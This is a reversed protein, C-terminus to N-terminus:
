EVEGPDKGKYVPEVQSLYLAEAQGKLEEVRQADEPDGSVAHAVIAADMRDTLIKLSASALPYAACAVPSLTGGQCLSPALNDTVAMVWKAGESFVAAGTMLGQRVEPRLQGGVCGGLVIMVGITAVLSRFRKM